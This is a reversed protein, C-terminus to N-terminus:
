LDLSGLSFSAGDGGVDGHLFLRGASQAQGFGSWKSRHQEGVFYRRLLLIITLHSYIYIIKYRGVFLRFVYRFLVFHLLCWRFHYCGATVVSDLIRWHMSGVDFGCCWGGHVVSRCGCLAVSGCRGAWVGRRKWGWLKERWMRGMGVKRCYYWLWGASHPWDLFAAVVVVVNMYVNVHSYYWHPISSLTASWTTTM